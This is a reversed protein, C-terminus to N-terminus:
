EIEQDYPECILDGDAFCRDLYDELQEFSTCVTKAFPFSLKNALGPSFDSEHLVVPIRNLWAGLVVPFSVFGGKSFVVDPKLKRCLYVSQLVGSFVKLVDMVNQISFYRRLKGTQISYFSIEKDKKDKSFESVLRKEPGTESGVYICEYKDGSLFHAMMVLNPVVHGSTGGGTFMVRQKKNTM